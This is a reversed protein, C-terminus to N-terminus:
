RFSAVRCCVRLLWQAANARLHRPELGRAGGGVGPCPCQWTGSTPSSEPEFVDCPVPVSDGVRMRMLEPWWPASPWCPVVVVATRQVTQLRRLVSAVLPTPPFVFLRDSPAPVWRFFDIAEARPHPLLSVFRPLKANDATAMADVDCTGLRAIIRQFADYKLVAGHWHEIRSLRDARSNVVGALHTAVLRTNNVRLLEFIARATRLLRPSGVRARQIDAVVTACDSRLVIESDRLQERFARLARLVAELERLTSHWRREGPRLRFVGAVESVVGDKYLWAGWGSGSADTTLWTRPEPRATFPTSIPGRLLRLWEGLESKSAADLFRSSSRRAM